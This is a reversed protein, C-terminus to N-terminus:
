GSGFTLGVGFLLATLHPQVGAAAKYLADQVRRHTVGAQFRLPGILGVEADIGVSFTAHDSGRYEEAGDTGDRQFWGAAIRAAVYLSRSTLVAVSPGVSISMGDYGCIISSTPSLPCDWNGGMIEFGAVAFLRGVAHLRAHVEGVNYVASGRAQGYRLGIAVQAALPWPM